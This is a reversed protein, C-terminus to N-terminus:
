NFSMLLLSIVGLMVWNNTVSHSTLARQGERRSYQEKTVKEFLNTYPRGNLEKWSNMSGRGDDKRIDRDSIGM